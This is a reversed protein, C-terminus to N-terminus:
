PNKKVLVEFCFPFCYIPSNPAMDFSHSSPQMCMLPLLQKELNKVTTRTLGHDLIKNKKFSQHLTLLM